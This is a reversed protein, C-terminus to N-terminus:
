RLFSVLVLLGGEPMHRPSMTMGLKEQAQNSIVFCPSCPPSNHPLPTPPEGSDYGWSGHLSLSVQQQREVTAELELITGSKGASERQLAEVRDEAAQLSGHARQSDVEYKKSQDEFASVQREFNSAQGEAVEARGIAEQKKSQLTKIAQLCM